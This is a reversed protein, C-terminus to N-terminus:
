RSDYLLVYIKSLHIQHNSRSKQGLGDLCQKSLISKVQENKFDEASQIRAARAATEGDFRTQEAAERAADGGMAALNLPVVAPLDPPPYARVAKTQLTVLFNEPTDTKLDFKQQEPKLIHVEQLQVNCFHDRLAELCLDVNARTAVPLTQFFRLAADQM